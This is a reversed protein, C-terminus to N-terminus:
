LKRPRGDVCFVRGVYPNLPVLEDGPDLPVLSCCDPDGPPCCDDRGVSVTGPPCCFRTTKGSIRRSVIRDSPCCARGYPNFACKSGSGCCRDGCGQGSPCCKGKKCTAGKKCCISGCRVRGPPCKGVCTGAKCDQQPTCCEEGCQTLKVSGSKEVGKCTIQCKGKICDVSKDGVPDNCCDFGAASPCPILTPGTCTDICQGDPGCVIYKRDPCTWLKTGWVNQCKQQGATRAASRRPAAGSVAPRVGPVAAAAVATGLLRLVRRRPMPEALLRALDDLVRGGSM